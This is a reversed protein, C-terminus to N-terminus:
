PAPAGLTRRLWAAIDKIEELSVSHPMAYEHWEVDYGMQRLFDRSGSGMAHPVVPDETGHVMFIPTRANIAAAERALSEALPLYTSLAMIGALRATHRLGTHLAIAGGQSFGALIM